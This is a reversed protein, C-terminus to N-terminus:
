FKTLFLMSAVLDKQSWPKIIIEVETPDNFFLFFNQLFKVTQNLNVNAKSVSSVISWFHDNFTSSFIDPNDILTGNSIM